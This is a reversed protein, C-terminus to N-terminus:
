GGANRAGPNRDPHRATSWCGAPPSIPQRSCSPSGFTATRHIFLGPTDPGHARPEILRDHDELAEPHGEHVCLGAALLRHLRHRVLLLREGPRREQVVLCRIRRHRRLDVRDPCVAPRRGPRPDRHPVTRGESGRQDLYGSVIVLAAMILFFAGWWSDVSHLTSLIPYTFITGLVGFAILIPRRGIKDSLAGVIPQLLMFLFLTAASIMTSDTKSMGVTNVLYKQMYTTYTYFALTGGMTLGVVTLVEKPHRLLTRLLSEKPEEKKKSFSETEEMGRRLFMAVVACLAGIFFPVRWGWSELQEVTLTQQLVILVALAILQGSILTVYQFSSFFGRQEKNAMESLYTASTGYEGGVSLGQLLRAVVLLIPAAVGITEYSPDPRHDALWLM